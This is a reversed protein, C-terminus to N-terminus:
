LARWHGGEHQVILDAKKLIQKAKALKQDPRNATKYLEMLDSLSAYKNGAIAHYLKVLDDHTIVCQATSSRYYSTWPAKSKLADLRLRIDELAAALARESAACAADFLTVVIPDFVGPYEADLDARQKAHVARLEAVDLGAERAGIAGNLMHTMKPMVKDVCRVLQSELVMQDEYEQLAAPLWGSRNEEFLEALALAERQAKVDRDKDSIGLTNTDGVKAEVLDHIHALTMVRNIFLRVGQRLGSEVAVNHAWAVEAAVLGLTIVHDSDTEKRIGDEHYTAREVRSFKLGLRTLYDARALTITM